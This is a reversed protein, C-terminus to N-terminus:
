NVVEIGCEKYIEDWYYGSSNKSRTISRKLYKDEKTTICVLNNKVEELIKKVEDKNNAKFCMQIAQSEPLGHEIIVKGKLNKISRIKIRSLGSISIKYEEELKLVGTSKHLLPLYDSEKRILRDLLYKILRDNGFKQILILIIEAMIEINYYKETM